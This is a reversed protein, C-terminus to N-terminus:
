QAPEPLGTLQNKMAKKDKKDLFDEWSHRFVAMDGAKREIFSDNNEEYGWTPFRARYKENM